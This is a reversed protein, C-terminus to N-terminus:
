GSDASRAEGTVSANYPYIFNSFSLSPYELLNRRFIILLDKRTENASPTANPSLRANILTASNFPFVMSNYSIMKTGLM